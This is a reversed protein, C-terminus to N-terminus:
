EKIIKVQGIQNGDELVRLLYIGASYNGLDIEFPDRIKKGSYVLQGTLNWLELFLDGPEAQILCKGNTPNPFVRITENDNSVPALGACEDVVLTISTTGKCGNQDIGSVSYVTTVSPSVMIQSGGLDLGWSYFIAGTVQIKATGGVCITSPTSTIALSPTPHIYIQVSKSRICGNTGTGQVTVITPTAPVSSFYSGTTGDSWTYSVAGTALLNVPSGPCVSPNGSIWVVPITDVILSSVATFTQNSNACSILMHYYTSSTLSPTAYLTTTAGPIAVFPGQQSSSSLWQYLMNTFNYNNALNLTAASGPCLIASAPTITGSAPFCAAACSLSHSPFYTGVFGNGCVHLVKSPKDLKVDYVYKYTAGSLSLPINPMPIFLAGNFNYCIINGKGGLYLNNCDDVAIGGQRKIQLNPVTIAAVKAGTTKDFAALDLGNYYFLYNSNVALCNFGNSSLNGANQYQAKNGQETFSNYTSLQLWLSGNFTSNVRAIRNNIPSNGAYIVFINGSEDVAHSAIDQAIMTNGPQFTSLTGAGTGPDLTVASINSSVGGGLIFMDGTTFNFGMDWVEQFNSNASSIFNDYNGTSDLRVIRNGNTVYGQGIYTKGNIKDVGFNSAQSTIPASSWAQSPIAGAFTWTLNGALSYRAVKFPNYGGYVYTNGNYDYDVDYACHNTPFNALSTVWPDIILTKTPDYNEPFTFSIVGNNLKFASPVDSRDAYYSKPAHETINGLLTRVIINGNNNQRIRSLDGSYVIKVEQPDAGPHLIVNYKIGEPHNEPILYEIDIKNYVNRYTLKKFAPSNYKEEGYTFYHKQRLGPEMEPQPNCGKWNMHVYRVQSPKIQGHREIAKLDKEKLVQPKTFEYVLGKSTFFIREAGNEMVFHIKEKILPHGDYQGRNEIFAQTGFVDKDITFHPPEKGAYAILSFLLLSTSLARRM